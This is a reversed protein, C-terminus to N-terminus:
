MSALISLWSSSNYNYGSVLSHIGQIFSGGGRLSYMEGDPTVFVVYGSVRLPVASIDFSLALPEGPSIDNKNIRLSLASHGNDGPIVAHAWCLVSGMALLASAIKVYPKATM